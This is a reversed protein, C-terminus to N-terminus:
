FWRSNRPYPRWRWLSGPCAGGQDLRRAGVGTDGRPHRQHRHRPPSCGGGTAADSSAAADSKRSAASRSGIKGLSTQPGIARVEGLAHGRVVLSGSFAGSRRGGRACFSRTQGDWAMKEVPVSEGTLLSEDAAFDGAELLVVDGAGPRRGDSFSTASWWSAAPFGSRSAM